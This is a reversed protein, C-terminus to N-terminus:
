SLARIAKVIQEVLIDSDLEADVAIADDPIELTAFQSEVLNPSMFHNKRERLRASAAEPSLQLHVFVMRIRAEDAAARLLDRYSTKLASCALVADHKSIAIQQILRALRDLWPGRDADTLPEGARLKAVSSASHYNDADFFTAGTTEAFRKGVTTKGSGAVGMFIILM